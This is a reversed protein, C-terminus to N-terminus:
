DGYFKIYTHVQNEAERLLKLLEEGFIKVEPNPAKAIAATLERILIPIQKQNFVTDGYPDIFRLCYSAIDDFDPLLKSLLGQPDLLEKLQDGGETEIYTDIGM